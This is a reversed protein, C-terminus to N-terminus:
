TWAVLGCGEPNPGLIVVFLTRLISFIKKDIFFFVIKVNQCSKIM